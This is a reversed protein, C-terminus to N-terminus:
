VRPRLKWGSAERPQHRFMTNENDFVFLVDCTQDFVHELAPAVSLRLDDAGAVGRQSDHGFTRGIEDDQVQVQRHHAPEFHAADQSRAGVDRVDRDDHQGRAGALVIADGTELVAGVIVHGLREAEALQGGSDAGNQPAASRGVLSAGSAVAARMEDRVEIGDRDRNVPFRDAQCSALELQQPVRTRLM